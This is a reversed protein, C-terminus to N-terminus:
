RRVFVTQESIAPSIGFYTELKSNPTEREGAVYNLTHIPPRIELHGARLFVIFSSRHVIFDFRNM